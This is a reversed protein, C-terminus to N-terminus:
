GKINIAKALNEIKNDYGAFKENQEDIRHHASKVSEEVRTIRKTTDPIFADFKETLKNVADATKNDNNQHENYAIKITGLFITIIGIGGALAEGDTLIV